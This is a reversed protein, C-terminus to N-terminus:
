FRKSFFSLSAIDNFTVIVSMIILLIIGIQFGFNQVKTAIKKGLCFEVLYILLHGGDLVPIPLLNILGLNVSILAIFSLLTLIGQQASKSSYQAIKIPGGMEKISRSGTIIQALSKLSMYSLKYVEIFSLKIASFISQKEITPNEAVIGLRYIKIDKGLADKVLVEKPKVEKELFEEDRKIKITLNEGTNLNMITAIDNFDKIKHDDIAIVLDGELLGAEKAPSADIFKNIIPKAIPAGFYTFFGTFIIIALLYNAMPGAAVIASKQLLSKNHFSFKKEEESLNLTEDAQSAPNKDGFMKVYGGLPLICFKWRTGSADTFGFLEKGFGIAFAEIKVGNIKAIFYHGFEHVFVVLTLVLVFPVINNFLASIFELIM